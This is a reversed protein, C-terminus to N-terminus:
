KQMDQPKGADYDGRMIRRVWAYCVFTREVCLAIIAYTTLMQLWDLHWLWKFTPLLFEPIYQEFGSSAQYLVSGGGVWTFFKGMMTSAYTPIEHALDQLAHRIDLNM